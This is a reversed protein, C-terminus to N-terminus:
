PRRTYAPLLFADTRSTPLEDGHYNALSGALFINDNNLGVDPQKAFRVSSNLYLVNQGEAGHNPSTAANVGRPDFQGDVFAPNQDALIAMGEAERPSYHDRRLPGEPSQTHQYSYHVYAAGPFDEMGPRVAFTQGGQQPCQFLPAQAMDARVLRFLAASNSVSPQGGARLWQSKENMVSPLYERNDGAYTALGVGIQGMNAACQNEFAKTRAQRLSPVFVAVLLLVCVGVTVLERLNFTGGAWPRATEQRAIYKEGQRILAVRTVTRAVLDAPPERDPLLDMAAFTREINAKTARLPEERALRDQVERAEDGTAQGMLWAILLEEDRSPNPSM